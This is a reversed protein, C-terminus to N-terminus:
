AFYLQRYRESLWVHSIGEKQDKRLPECWVWPLNTVIRDLQHLGRAEDWYGLTTM